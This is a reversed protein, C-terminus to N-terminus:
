ASSARNVCRAYFRELEAAVQGINDPNIDVPFAGKIPLPGDPGDVRPAWPAIEGDRWREELDGYVGEAEEPTIGRARAVQEWSAELLIRDCLVGLIRFINGQASIRRAMATYAGPEFDQEGGVPVAELLSEILEAATKALALRTRRRLIEDPANPHAV